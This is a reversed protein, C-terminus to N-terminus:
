DESGFTDPIVLPKLRGDSAALLSTGYLEGFDAQYRPDEREIQAIAAALIGSHEGAQRLERVQQLLSAFPATAVLVRGSSEDRVVSVGGRAIWKDLTNVSIGLMRAAVAKPIGRQADIRREAVRRLRRKVEPNRSDRTAARLDLLDEVIDEVASM